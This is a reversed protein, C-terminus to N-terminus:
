GVDVVEQSIVQAEPASGIGAVLGQAIIREITAIRDEISPQSDCEDCGPGITILAGSAAIARAVRFGPANVALVGVLRHRGGIPRWDGSLASARMIEIDQETADSRVAGSAWIGYADPGLTIDGGAYGTHDYHITAAGAELHVPAHRTKMVLPGTPIGRLREGTLFGKYAAPEKPPRVCTGPFGVHCRGWLAVHGFIHGDDTITLPCGFQGEEEPREPEQWVLREDDGSDKPNLTGNGFKPDSFWTPDASAVLAMRAQAFAPVDVIAVHRIRASSVTWVGEEPPFQEDEPLDDYAVSIGVAGEELLEAARLVLLQTTPDNSDSLNGRAWIVGDPRREIESITGITPATHDMETQDFVLPWPGGEWKFAGATFHRGDGTDVGEVAVVGELEVGTADATLARSFPSLPWDEHVSRVKDYITAIRAEVQKRDQGNVSFGAMGRGAVAAIGKPIIHLQGNLVDCFLLDYTEALRADGDKRWLFARGISAANGGCHEAVRSRAETLNWKTSKPAIPLNSTGSVTM